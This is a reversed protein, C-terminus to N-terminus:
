SRVEPQSAALMSKYAAVIEATIHAHGIALMEDGSWGLAAIMALTPEVPVLVFGEPVAASAQELERIRAELRGMERLYDLNLQSTQPREYLPKAGVDDQKCDTWGFAETRFYGFPDDGGAADKVAAELEAIRQRVPEAGHWNGPEGKGGSVIQYIEAITANATRAEQAHIQAELKLREVLDREDKVAAEAVARLGSSLAVSIIGESVAKETAATFIERLLEDSLM